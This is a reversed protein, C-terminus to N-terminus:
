NDLALHVLGRQPLRCPPAWPPLACYVKRGAALALVLGYSECGAVWRARSLAAAISPSEDLEVQVDAQACLWADYKGSPDSPHPRLRIRLGSPLGLLPLKSVLYDLAQFEGPQGRQWDSRAPEAIYLLEPVADVAPEVVDALQQKLYWNGVLRIALKPFSERALRLADEDTVWLEDPLITEGNRVFRQPYNVWHDLLAASPVGVRKALARARHELDSAWGTGSLLFHAGQLAEEPTACRAPSGFASQWVLAAPGQMCARWAQAPYRQLGAVIINAAGADNCVVATCSPLIFADIAGSTEAM